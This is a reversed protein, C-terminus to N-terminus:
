LYLCYFSYNLNILLKYENLELKYGNSELNFFNFVM